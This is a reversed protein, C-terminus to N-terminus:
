MLEFQCTASCGDLNDTNGDDCQEGNDTQTVGDGCRAGLEQCGPACASPGGGLNLGDDCVEDFEEQVVGDGCFPTVECLDTCGNYSAGNMDGDDCQEDSALVGDGCDSECTSPARNFNSLTLRYQSQVLRREAQFVVAEYIGGVNLDLASICGAENMTEDASDCDSLTISGDERGHVGGIDVALRGNIFVWVDDDGSFELTETGEYEFWFRVESTFFFNQDGSGNGDDSLAELTGGAETPFGAAASGDIPTSLPFFSSSDFRYTGSGTSDLRMSQVVTRNYDDNSTYWLAFSADSTIRTAGSTRTPRGDTLTTNVMETESGSYCQFDPHGYPAMAGTADDQPRVILGGAACGPLFDRLVVPLEVFDPDPLAVETCMYGTEEQCTSDCGDGSVTNGDDCTEPAFVVEDGCVAVCTGDTCDPERTCFPTCGDGILANGDDCEETGEATGDGCTTATCAAGPTACAFGEELVCSASCGDGGSAECTDGDSASVCDADETCATSGGGNCRGGDDCVEFGARLGDGCRAASCAVGAVPCVWGAERQCSADCGDGAAENRDDCTEDGEIRGNGCTVIRVCADGPALCVFNDEVASCDAACGDGAATNGDDCVEDGALAGDGCPEGGGGDRMTADPMPGGDVTVDGDMGVAGDLVDGDPLDGDAPGDDFDCASTACLALTLLSVTALRRTHM